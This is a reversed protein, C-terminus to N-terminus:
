GALALHNDWAYGAADGALAGTVTADPLRAFAGAGLGSSLAFAGDAALAALGCGDAMEVAAVFAGDETDWWGTFGGRPCSVGLYRGARDFRVSGGYNQSRRAYPAPLDLLRIDGDDGVLGGVPVIDREPGEYQFALAIRGDGAVDMHRISMQHRDSALAARGLLAGDAADMFVLSPAMTPINLKTRGYDPHTLIGGITVALTRGDPMLALEHPDIGHSPWEGVRRYGDAPDYLGLAGTGADYANETAFLVSGDASFVAHGQFHRGDPSDIRHVTEFSDPDVAVLFTGPRRACAVIHRRPGGQLVEHARDPLPQRFVLTGDLGFGAAFHNGQADDVGSLLLPGAAQVRSRGAAAM